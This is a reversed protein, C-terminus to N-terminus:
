CMEVDRLDDVKLRERLGNKVTKHVNLKSQVFVDNGLHCKNESKRTETRFRSLITKM